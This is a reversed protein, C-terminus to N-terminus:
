KKKVKRQKKLIDLGSHGPLQRLKPLDCSCIPSPRSTVLLDVSKAPISRNDFSWGMGNHFSGVVKSSGLTTLPYLLYTLRYLSWFGGYQYNDFWSVYLIGHRRLFFDQSVDTDQVHNVGILVCNEVVVSRRLNAMDHGM